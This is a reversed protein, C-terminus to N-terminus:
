YKCHENVGWKRTEGSCSECLPECLYWSLAVSLMSGEAKPPPPYFMWFIIYKGSKLIEDQHQTEFSKPGHGAPGHEWVLTGETSLKLLFILSEELKVSGLFISIQSVCPFEMYKSGQQLKNVPLYLIVLKELVLGTGVFM